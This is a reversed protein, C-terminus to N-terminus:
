DRLRIDHLAIAVRAAEDEDVKARPDAFRETLAAIEDGVRQTFVGVGEDRKEDAARSMAQRMSVAVIGGLPQVVAVASERDPLVARGNLAHAAAVAVADPSQTEFPRGEPPCCREDFCVYSWLRDGVILVADRIATRRSAATILDDVLDEHPLDYGTPAEATFVFLMVADADAQMMRSTVEAVVAQRDEPAPLDVRLAFHMRDRPGCLAVAVLSEAPYFGLMHTVATVVASLDGVRLVTPQQSDSAPM